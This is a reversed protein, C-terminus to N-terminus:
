PDMYLNFGSDTDNDYDDIDTEVEKMWRKLAEEFGSDGYRMKKSPDPFCLM